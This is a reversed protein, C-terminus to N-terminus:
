GDVAVYANASIRRKAYSDMLSLRIIPKLSLNYINLILYLGQCGDTWRNFIDEALYHICCRIRDLSDLEAEGVM